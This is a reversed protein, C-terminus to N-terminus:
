LAVKFDSKNNQLKVINSPLSNLLKICSYTVGKQIHSLNVTLRHLQSKHRANICHLTSNAQCNELNNIVDDDFLYVPHNLFVFEIEYTQIEMKTTVIPIADVGIGGNKYHRQPPYQNLRLIIRSVSVIICLYARNAAVM